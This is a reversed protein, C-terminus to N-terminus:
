PNIFHGLPARGADLQSALNDQFSRDNYLSLFSDAMELLLATPPTCMVAYAEPLLQLRGINLRTRNESIDTSSTAQYRGMSSRRGDPYDYIEFTTQPQVGALSGIPIFCIGSDPDGVLPAIARSGHPFAPTSFIPRNKNYGECQPAQPYPLAGPNSHQIDQMIAKIRESLATHTVAWFVMDLKCDDLATILATTFLGQPTGAGRMRYEQSVQSEHCSAILVHSTISPYRLSHPYIIRPAARSNSEENPPPKELAESWLEQDLQALDNQDIEPILETTEDVRSGSGAHCCDFFLTIHNSKKRAIRGVLASITIDPIPLAPSTRSFSDVPVIWEVKPSGIGPINIPRQIGHGAYYIIVPADKPICSNDAINHLNQIVNQRTAARGTLMNISTIGMSKLTDHLKIADLEPARLDGSNVAIILAYAPLYPQNSM